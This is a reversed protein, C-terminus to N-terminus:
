KHELHMAEFTTVMIYLQTPSAVCAAGSRAPTALGDVTGDSNAGDLSRPQQNGSLVSGTNKGLLSKAKAYPKLRQTLTPAKEKKTATTQARATRSACATTEPRSSQDNGTDLNITSPSGIGFFTAWESFSLRM